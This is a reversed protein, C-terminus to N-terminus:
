PVPAPPRNQEEGMGVDDLRLAFVPRAIGELQELLVAIEVAAPGAIVFRHRGHEDGVHDPEFLLVVLRVAVDDKRELGVLLDSVDVLQPNLPQDFVM